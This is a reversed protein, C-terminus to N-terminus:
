SLIELEEFLQSLKGHMGDVLIKALGEPECKLEGQVWKVTM